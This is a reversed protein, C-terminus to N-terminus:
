AFRAGRETLSGRLVLRHCRTEDECYCGLSLHAVHSLAALVDLLHRASPRKMEARYPLSWLLRRVHG